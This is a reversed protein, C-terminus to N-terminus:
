WQDLVENERQRYERERQHRVLISMPIRGEFLTVVRGQYLSSQREIRNAWMSRHSVMMM